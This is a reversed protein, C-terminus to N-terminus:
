ETEKTWEEGLGGAHKTYELAARPSEDLIKAIEIDSKGQYALKIGISHRGYHFYIQEDKPLQENIKALYYRANEEYVYGGQDTYYYKRTETEGKGNTFKTKVVRTRPKTSAPFLYSKKAEQPLTNADFLALYKQIYVVAKHNINRAKQYPQLEIPAGRKEKKGVKFKIRILTPTFTIDKRQLSLVENIRKGTLWIIALVCTLWPQFPPVLKAQDYSIQESLALIKQWNKSSIEEERTIKHKPM